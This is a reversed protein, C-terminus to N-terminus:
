SELEDYLELRLLYVAEHDFTYFIRMAPYSGWGRSRLVRVALGPFASTHREPDAGIYQALDHALRKAEPSDLSVLATEFEDHPVIERRLGPRKRERNAPRSPPDTM